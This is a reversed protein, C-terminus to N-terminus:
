VNLWAKKGENKSSNFKKEVWYFIFFILSMAFFYFFISCLSDPNLATSSECAIRNTPYFRVHLSLTDGIEQIWTNWEVTACRHKSHALCAGWHFGINGSLSLLLLLLLVMVLVWLIGTEDVIWGFQLLEMSVRCTSSDTNTHKIRTYSKSVQACTGHCKTRYRRVGEIRKVNSLHFDTETICTRWFSWGCLHYSCWDFWDDNLKM